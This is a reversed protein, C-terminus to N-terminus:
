QTAGSITESRTYAISQTQVLKMDGTYVEMSVLGIGKAYYYFHVGAKKGEKLIKEQVIVCDPYNKQYVQAPGFSAKYSSVSGDGNRHSWYTAGDSKPFKFVFDNSLAKEGSFTHEVVDDYISYKEVTTKGQDTVQFVERITGNAMQKMGVCLLVRTGNATAGDQPKLYEYDNQSGEVAPFYDALSGPGGQLVPKQPVTPTEVVVIPKQANEVTVTPTPTPNVAVLPHPTPTPPLTPIAAPPQSTPQESPATQANPQPTNFQSLDVPPPLSDGGDAPIAPPALPKLEDAHLGGQLFLLLCVALVKRM